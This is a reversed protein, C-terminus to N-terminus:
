GTADRVVAIREGEVEDLDRETPVVVLQRSWRLLPICYTLCLMGAGSLVAAISFIEALWGGLLSILPLTGVFAISHVSLVRGRLAEPTRHQIVNLVLTNAAFHCAGIVFGLILVPV